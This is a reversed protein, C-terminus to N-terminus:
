KVVVWIADVPIKEGEKRVIIETEGSGSSSMDIGQGSRLNTYSKQLQDGQYYDVTM